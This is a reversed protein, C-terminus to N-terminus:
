EEPDVVPGIKSQDVPKSAEEFFDAIPNTEMATAKALEEANRPLNPFMKAVAAECEASSPQSQWPNISKFVPATTITQGVVPAVNPQVAPKLNKLGEVYAKKEADTFVKVPQKKNKAKLAKAERDAQQKASGQVGAIAHVAVNPGAGEAVAGTRDIKRGVNDAPNYLKMGTPGYNSKVLFQHYKDKQRRIQERLSLGKSKFKNKIDAIKDEFSPEKKEGYQAKKARVAQEDEETKQTKREPLDGGTDAAAFEKGVSKPIGIDSHGSAAAWMAKRQAESVPPKELVEEKNIKGM